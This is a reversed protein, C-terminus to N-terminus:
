NKRENQERRLQRILELKSGFKGQNKPNLLNNLKNEESDLYASFDGANESFRSLGFLLDAESLKRKGKKVSLIFYFKDGERVVYDKVIKYGNSNLWQRLEIVKTNPQLYFNKIKVFKPKEKLIKAIMLGGMGSIVAGDIKMRPYSTFGDSVIFKIKDDVGQAKANTRAKEVCKSSVDSSIILKSKKDKAKKIPLFGHDSGVDAFNKSEKAENYLAELRASKLNIDETAVM